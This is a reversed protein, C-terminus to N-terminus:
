QAVSAATAPFQVFSSKSAESSADQEVVAPAADAAALAAAEGPMPVKVANAITQGAKETEPEPEEVEIREPAQRVPAVAATQTTAQEANREVFPEAEALPVPAFAEPVPSFRHAELNPSVPNIRLGQMLAVVQDAAMSPSCYRLRIQAAGGLGASRSVGHPSVNRAFQWAYVCSGTKGAPGTAYGFVGYANDAIVPSIRMQVGALAVRMEAEVQSRSPAGTGSKGARSKVMTVTLMNEGALDTANAYLIVHEVNGKGSTQRVTTAALGPLAAIAYGPPVSTALSPWDGKTAGTRLFPDDVVSTCSALASVLALMPLLKKM